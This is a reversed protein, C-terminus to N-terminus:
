RPLFHPEIAFSERDVKDFYSKIAKTPDAPMRKGPLEREWWESVYSFAADTAAAETAHLTLNNGHDHEILLTWIMSPGNTVPAVNLQECLADIDDASLGPSEGGHTLIARVHADVDAGVFVMGELSRQLLRLGALIADRQTPSLATNIIPTPM